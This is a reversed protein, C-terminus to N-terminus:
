ISVKGGGDADPAPGRDPRRGIHQRGASRHLEPLHRDDASAPRDCPGTLGAGKAKQKELSDGAAPHRPVLFVFSM